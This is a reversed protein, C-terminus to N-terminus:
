DIRENAKWEGIQWNLEEVLRDGGTEKYATKAESFLEEFNEKWMLHNQNVIEYQLM